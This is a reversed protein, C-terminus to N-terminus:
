KALFHEVKKVQSMEIQWLTAQISQRDPRCDWGSCYRQLDFIRSWSAEVDAQQPFPIREYFADWDLESESVYQCSLVNNWEDFDSLLFSDEEVEFTIQVLPTGREAYGSQRLDM